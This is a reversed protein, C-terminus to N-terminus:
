SLALAPMEPSHLEATRTICEGGCTGLGNPEMYSCQVSAYRAPYVSMLTVLPVDVWLLLRDSAICFAVLPCLGPCLAM